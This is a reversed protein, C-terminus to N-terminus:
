IQNAILDGEDMPSLMKDYWLRKRSCVATSLAVNKNYFPEVPVQTM